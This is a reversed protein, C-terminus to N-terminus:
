VCFLLVCPCVIFLTGFLKSRVPHMLWVVFPFVSLGSSLMLSLCAIISEASFRIPKCVMLKYSLMIYICIMMDHM